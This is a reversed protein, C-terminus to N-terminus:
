RAGCRRTRIVSASGGTNLGGVHGTPELLLVSAGERAAAIPACFGGPTAGYVIVEAEDEGASAPIVLSLFVAFLPAFRM